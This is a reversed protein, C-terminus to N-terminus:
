LGGGRCGWGWGLVFSVLDEVDEALLGLGDGGEEDRAEAGGHGAALAVGVRAEEGGGRGEVAEEGGGAADAAEEVALAVRNERRLVLPDETAARPRRPARLALDRCPAPRQPHRIRQRHRGARHRHHQRVRGGPRRPLLPSLSQTQVWRISPDFHIAIPGLVTSGGWLRGVGWGGGQKSPQCGLRNTQAM